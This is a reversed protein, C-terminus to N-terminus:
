VPPSDVLFLDEVKESQNGGVIGSFVSGSSEPFSDRSELERKGKHVEPIRAVPM